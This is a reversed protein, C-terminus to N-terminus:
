LLVYVFCVAFPVNFSMYLCYFVLFSKEVAFDISKELRFSLWQFLWEGLGRDECGCLLGVTVRLAASPDELIADVEFLAILIVFM